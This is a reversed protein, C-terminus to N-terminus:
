SVGAAARGEDTSVSEFVRLVAEAKADWTYGRAATRAAASMARRRAPDRALDAIAWALAEATGEVDTVPVRIGAADGVLEHAGQHDLCVVPLGHAMAELLQNGTSDRLSPFVFLDAREYAAGVEGFPVPGTMTVRDRGPQEALWARFDAEAEENVGGGVIDLRVDPGEPLLRAVREVAMVALPLGKRPMIRGLWLVTLGPTGGGRAAEAGSPTGDGARGFGTPVAVDMVRDVRKAGMRRALLGTDRNTCLVASARRVAIVAHAALPWLCKVVLSRLAEDRWGPGFLGAFARPATQGGGLPGLVLAPAGPARPAGSEGATRVRWLFSGGLLTGYTVHHLVEFPREEHLRRAERAAEWLWLVYQVASGVTWGLGLKLPWERRSVFVFRPMSPGGRLAAEIEARWRETTVVTVDHGRRAFELPYHWGCGTESGGDPQCAFAEVLIRM